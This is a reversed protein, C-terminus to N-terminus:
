GNVIHLKGDKVFAYEGSEYLEIKEDAVSQSDLAFYAQLLPMNVLVRPLRQQMFEISARALLYEEYEEVLMPWLVLGETEVPEYRRIRKLHKAPIDSM